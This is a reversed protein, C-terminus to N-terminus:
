WTEDSYFPAAIESTKARILDIEERSLRIKWNDINKKSNRVFENRSQQEVPNHAGSSKLIKEQVRDTFKLHFAHYIARFQNVPDLSLDEHRVFLWDPHDKRYIAITHHICNWLLIAQEIIGKRNESQERIEAEFGALFKEMLLPQRLFHNFDFRWNKIKLSSCFAAPHRIMVLVDMDFTRGLWEASFFAIPDKVLPRSNHLRYRWFLIQDRLIDAADMLSRVKRFNNFLPYRFHLIDELAELYPQSNEDCLYQFPRPFPEPNVSTRIVDNFPEHIYATQGSAALM